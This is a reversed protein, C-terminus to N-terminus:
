QTREFSLITDRLYNALADSIQAKKHGFSDAYLFVFDAESGERPYRVSFQYNIQCQWRPDTAQTPVKYFYVKVQSWRDQNILRYIEDVIKKRGGQLYIHRRFM